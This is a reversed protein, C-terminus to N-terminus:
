YEMYTYPHIVTTGFLQLANFWGIYSAIETSGIASVIWVVQTPCACIVFSIVITFSIVFTKTSRFKVSQFWTIVRDNEQRNEYSVNLRHIWKNRAVLKKCIKFYIVILIAVPIFYQVTTLSLTYAINLSDMPWKEHCGSTKDYRLVLAYPIVCIIALM